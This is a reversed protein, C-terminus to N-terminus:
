RSRKLALSKPKVVPKPQPLEKQFLIALEGVTIDGWRWRNHSRTGYIDTRTCGRYMISIQQNPDRTPPEGPITYPQISVYVGAEAAETPFMVAFVDGGVGPGGPNIRIPKKPLGGVWGLHKMLAKLYDRADELFASKGSGWRPVYDGEFREHIQLDYSLKLRRTSPDSKAKAM